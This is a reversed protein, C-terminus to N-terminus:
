SSADRMDQEADDEPDHSAGEDPAELRGAQADTDPLPERDTGPVDDIADGPEGERADLAPDRVEEALRQDLSEGEAQEAATTGYHNVALPREPPSWGEDYPDAARATLTDEPDLIGEDERVEDGVTGGPQYVDDATGEDSAM